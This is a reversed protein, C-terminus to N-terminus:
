MTKMIARRNTTRRPDDDESKNETGNGHNNDDDIETHGVEMSSERHDEEKRGNCDTSSNDDMRFNTLTKTCSLWYSSLPTSVNESIDRRFMWYIYRLSTNASFNPPIKDTVTPSTCRFLALVLLM